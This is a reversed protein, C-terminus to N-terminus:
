EEVEFLSLLQKQESGGAQREAEQDSQMGTSVDRGLIEGAMRLITRPSPQGLGANSPSAAAGPPTMSRHHRRRGRSRSHAKSEKRDKKEKKEKKEKKDKESKARAEEEEKKKRERETKEEEAKKIKARNVTEKYDINPLDKEPMIATFVARLTKEVKAAEEFPMAGTKWMSVMKGMVLERFAERAGARQDMVKQVQAPMGDLIARAKPADLGLREMLATCEAAM